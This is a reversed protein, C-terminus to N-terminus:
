DCGRHGTVEGRRRRGGVAGPMSGAFFIEYDENKRLTDVIAIQKDGGNKWGRERTADAKDKAGATRAKGVEGVSM